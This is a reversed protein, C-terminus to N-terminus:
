TNSLSNQFFGPYLAYALTILISHRVQKDSSMGIELDAFSTQPWRIHWLQRRRMKVMDTVSGAWIGGFHQM